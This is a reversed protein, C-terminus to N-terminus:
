ADKAPEEEAAAPAAVEGAEATEVAPEAETATEPQEIADETEAPTSEAPAAVAPETKEVVPKATKAMTVLNKVTDSVQAGQGKWYDFRDMSLKFNQARKGEPDYWGINELFRGKAPSRADAVIVRFFPKNNNGM